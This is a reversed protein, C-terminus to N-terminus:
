RNTIRLLVNAHCWTSTLPCWCQLDRGRLRRLAPILTDRWRRLTAIEAESFGARALVYPSLDGRLWADYLIVSRKHGVKPRREFPNSWLTPRGVYIAGRPTFNGKGRTRHLRRPLPDPAYAVKIPPAYHGESGVAPGLGLWSM